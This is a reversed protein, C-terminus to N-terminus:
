ERTLNSMQDSGSLSKLFEVLDSRERRTLGLPKVAPDHHPSAIGGLNLFEVVELLTGISGDHMYPATRAINRLPPTLFLGTNDSTSIAGLGIDAYQHTREDYGVGLDHYAFDMFLANREGVTHCAACGAKGTFLSLGRQAARSIANAEKGYYYRDFPSNASVLSRVFAALAKAVDDFHIENVAMASRFAAVYRPQSRVYREVRDLYHFDMENPASMPYKVFNELSSAYGDWQLLPRFAANLLSPVNRKTARGYVGRGRPEGNTFAKDHQHCSACAVAGNSSLARDNFLARGLAIQESTPHQDSPIPIAPLGLPSPPRWASKRALPTIAIAGGAVAGASLGTGDYLFIAEMSSAASLPDVRRRNAVILDVKHQDSLRRCLAIWTPRDAEPWAASVLIAHAGREALRPIGVAIDDGSLIGLRTGNDDFSEVVDRYSGREAAGDQGGTRVMLKRHKDVVQGRSDLLVTTVFYRERNADSELLSVAISVHLRSALDGFYRTTPGPVDEALTAGTSIDNLAGSLALEPLVVHTAGKMVATTILTALQDRNRGVDGPAPVFDIAAYVPTGTSVRPTLYRDSAVLGSALAVVGLYAHTHPRILM